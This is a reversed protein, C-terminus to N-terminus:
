PGPGTFVFQPGSGPGPALLPGTAPFYLCGGYANLKAILLDHSLCDFAKSIDLLRGEFLKKNDNASKWKELVSVQCHQASFGKRFGCQYKSSFSSEFYESMQNFIIREDLKSINSLISVQRYNNKASKSDKKHVPTIDARKLLSPYLFTNFVAFLIQSFSIEM